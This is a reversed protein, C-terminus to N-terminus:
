FDGEAVQLVTLGLEERWMKVVSNRDDLVYHVDYRPAIDREYIERKVETDHRNDDKNRMFLADDDGQPGIHLADLWMLTAMSCVADRGSVFIIVYGLAMFTKVLHIVPQNPTDEHVRDWDFPGRADADTGRLAVTGDIDVIVAKRKDM